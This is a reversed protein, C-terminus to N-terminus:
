KHRAFEGHYKIRANAIAIEALNIDTYHGLFICKQNVKIQVLWKKPKKAWSVGKIGSTNSKPIPSNCQNQSTTAARLNEIKNNLKNCDIHDVEKPLFGYEMFFIIRHMLFKKCNFSVVAYGKKNICTAKTGLKNKIKTKKRYLDGNRYEFIEHLYEQTLNTYKNTM